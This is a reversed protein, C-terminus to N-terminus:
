KPKIFEVVLQTNNYEICQFKDLDGQPSSQGIVHTIRVAREPVCVRRIKRVSKMMSVPKRIDFHLYAPGALGENCM